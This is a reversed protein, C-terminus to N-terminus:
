DNLIYLQIDLNASIVLATKLVHYKLKNEFTSSTKFSSHFEYISLIIHFYLRTNLNTYVYKRFFLLFNNNFNSNIKYSVAFFTSCRHGERNPRHPLSSVLLISFSNCLFAFPQRSFPKRKQDSHKAANNRGVNVTHDFTWHSRYCM